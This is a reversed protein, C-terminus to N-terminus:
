QTPYKFYTEVIETDKITIGDTKSTLNYDLNSVVENVQEQSVKGHLSGQSDLCVKVLLYVTRQAPEIRKNVVEGKKEAVAENILEQAFKDVRADEDIYEVTGDPHVKAITRGHEDDDDSVWADIHTIGTGHETYDNRIEGWKNSM